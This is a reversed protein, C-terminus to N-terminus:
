VYKALAIKPQNWKMVAFDSFWYRFFRCIFFGKEWELFWFLVYLSSLSAVFHPSRWQSGSLSNAGVLPMGEILIIPMCSPWIAWIGSWVFLCHLLFGQSYLIVSERSMGFVHHWSVQPGENVALYSIPRGHFRLLLGQRSARSLMSFWWTQIGSWVFLCPITFFSAM